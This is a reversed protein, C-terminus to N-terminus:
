NNKNKQSHMKTKQKKQKQPSLLLIFRKESSDM